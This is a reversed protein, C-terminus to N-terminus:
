GQNKRIAFERSPERGHGVIQIRDNFLRLTSFANTSKTEVMGKLTVFPVGLQEGLNGAHNHGNIWAAVCSQKGVIELLRSSNWLNHENDPFIPHHSFILVRAGQATASECEANIWDLQSNGIAGNWSQAWKEGKAKSESLLKEAVSYKPSEMPQAYLSLDTTDLFLFKWHDLSVAYYRSKMGIRAPVQDKYKDEVDFDHNGLVHHVSHKLHELPKSITDFSAWHMDILDGLNACFRLPLSNFHDIAEQLKAISERYFRTGKSQIDAYQIDALLGIEIPEPSSAHLAVPTSEALLIPFLGSALSSKLLQRRKM